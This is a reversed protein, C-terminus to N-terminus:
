KFSNILFTRWFFEAEGGGGQVGVWAKKQVIHFPLPLDNDLSSGASENVLGVLDPRM